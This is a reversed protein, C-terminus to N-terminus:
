YRDIIDRLIERKLFNKLELLLIINSQNLFLEFFKDNANESIILFFFFKILYHCFM